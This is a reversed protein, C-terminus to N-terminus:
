SNLWSWAACRGAMSPAGAARPSPSPAGLLTVFQTLLMTKGFGPPAILLTLPAAVRARLLALLAPRPVLPGLQQPPMIKTRMIQADHESSNPEQREPALLAGVALAIRAASLEADDGLYFRRLRGRAKHYARWYWGGRKNGAREKRATIRGAPAEIVFRDAQRLWDFWAPSGVLVVAPGDAREYHLLEGKLLAEGHTKMGHNYGTRNRVDGM